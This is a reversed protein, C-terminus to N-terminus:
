LTPHFKRAPARCYREARYARHAALAPRRKRRATTPGAPTPASRLPPPLIFFSATKGDHRPEDAEHLGQAAVHHEGNQHAKDAVETGREDRDEAAKGHKVQEAECRGDHELRREDTHPEKREHAADEAVSLLGAVVKDSELQKRQDSVLDEARQSSEAGRLEFAAVAAVEDGDDRRVNLQELDEVRVRDRGRGDRRQEREDHTQEDPM